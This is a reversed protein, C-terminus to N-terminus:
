RKGNTTCYHQYERFCEFIFIATKENTGDPRRVETTVRKSCPCLVRVGDCLLKDVLLFTFTFEGAVMVAAPHEGEIKEAYAEALERLQPMQQEPGIPPFPLAKVTGYIKAAERQADPWITYPHNSCNILM